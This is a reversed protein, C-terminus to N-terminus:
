LLTAPSREFYFMAGRHGSHDSFEVHVNSCHSDMLIEFIRNLSYNNMQMMPSSFARGKALNLLGHLPGVRQRWARLGRRFASRRDSFTLHIAGIGGEALLTILKRLIAEGRDVPIHQFVIFSHVLDFSQSKLSDLQDVHLLQTSPVSFKRCNEKAEALMGPSVDVGVVTESRRALPVLLRGVGCGYDLARTPQFGPRMRTRIVNCVHEVHSEGSAFFDQLSNDTLNEALYKAHSIVGFYPNSDGWERWDLDTNNAALM